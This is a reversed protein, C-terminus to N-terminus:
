PYVVGKIEVYNIAGQFKASFTTGKFQRNAKDVIPIESVDPVDVIISELVYLGLEAKRTLVAKTFNATAIMGPNTFPVKDKSSLYGYTDEQIEAKTSDVGRIIDIYEGSAVVGESSIINKNAITEIFNANKGLLNTYATGSLVTPTAGSITKFKWNTTGAGKPLQLGFWGAEPYEFANPSYIGTSRDRSALQLVAFVDTTTADVSTPDESSYGMLKERAEAQAAGELIDANRDEIVGRKAILLGYWDPNEADIGDLTTALTEVTGVSASAQTITGAASDTSTAVIYVSDLVNTANITIVGAGSQVADLGTVADIIAVLGAAVTTESPAALATYSYEVRGINITFIDGEAPTGAITVDVSQPATQVRKGILIKEPSISQGFLMQAMIYEETTSAFDEGVGSLDLYTRVREPFADHVGVVLATGFGKRTVRASERTITVNVIQNIDSM